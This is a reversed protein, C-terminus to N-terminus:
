RMASPAGRRDVAARPSRRGPQAFRPPSRLPPCKRLFLARARRRGPRNVRFSLPNRPARAGTTSSPSVPQSSSVPGGVAVWVISLRGAATPRRQGSDHVRGADRLECRRARATDAKMRLPASRKTPPRRPRWARPHLWAGPRMVGAHPDIASAADISTQVGVSPAPWCGAPEPPRDFFGTQTM